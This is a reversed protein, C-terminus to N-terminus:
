ATSGPVPPVSVGAAAAGHSASRALNDREFVRDSPLGGPWQMVFPEASRRGLDHRQLRGAAYQTLRKEAAHWQRWSFRDAHAARIRRRLSKLIRGVSGDLLSLMAACKRRDPDAIGAFPEEAGPPPDLPQHPTLFAVYLFWPAARHQEVFASAERAIAEDVYRDNCKGTENHRFFTLPPLKKQGPFWVSQQFGRVQVSSRCRRIVWIGNAWTVPPTAPM